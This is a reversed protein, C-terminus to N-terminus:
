DCIFVLNVSKQRFQSIYNRLTAFLTTRLRFTWVINLNVLKPLCIDIINLLKELWSLENNDSDHLRITLVRLECGEPFFATDFIPDSDRCIVILVLLRKFLGHWDTPWDVCLFENVIELFRLAPCGISLARGFGQLPGHHMIYRLDAYILVRLSSFLGKILYTVFCEDIIAICLGLLSSDNTKVGRYNDFMHVYCNHPGYVNDPWQFSPQFDCDTMQGLDLVQLNPCTYSLNWSPLYQKVLESLEVTNTKVYKLNRLKGSRIGYMMNSSFSKFDDRRYFYNRRGLLDLDYHYVALIELPSEFEGDKKEQLASIFSKSVKSTFLGGRYYIILGELGLAAARGVAKSIKRVCSLFGSNAGFNVVVIKLGKPVARELFYYPPICYEDKEIIFDCDILLWQDDGRIPLSDIRVCSGENLANRVVKEELDSLELISRYLSDRSVGAFPFLRGMFPIPNIFDFEFHGVNRERSLWKGIKHLSVTREQWLGFLSTAADESQCWKNIAKNLMEVNRWDGWSLWPGVFKLVTALMHPKDGVEILLSHDM